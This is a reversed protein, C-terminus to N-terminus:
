ILDLHPVRYIFSPPPSGSEYQIAKTSKGVPKSPNYPKIPPLDKASAGNRDGINLFWKQNALVYIKAVRKFCQYNLDMIEKPLLNWYNRARTSFKTRSIELRISPVPLRGNVNERSNETVKFIEKFNLSTLGEKMKKTYNLDFLIFLIRVPIIGDPPRGTLGLKWYKILANEIKELQKEEGGSWLQCCYILNPM